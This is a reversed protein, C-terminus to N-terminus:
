ISLLADASPTRVRRLVTAQRYIKVDKGKGQGSVASWRVTFYGPRVYLMCKAPGYGHASLFRQIREAMVSDQGYVCVCTGM